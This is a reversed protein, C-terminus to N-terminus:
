DPYPRTLESHLSAVVPSALSHEDRFPHEQGLSDPLMTLLERAELQSQARRPNGGAVQHADRTDKRRAALQDGAVLAHLFELRALHGKHHHAFVGRALRVTQNRGGHAHSNWGVPVGEAVKRLVVREALGFANRALVGFLQRRFHEGGRQAHFEVRVSTTLLRSMRDAGVSGRVMSRRFFTAARSSFIRPMEKWPRFRAM